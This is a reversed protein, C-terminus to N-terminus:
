TVGLRDISVLLRILLGDPAWERVIEGGLQSRITAQELLTGFGSEDVPAVPPGGHEKWHFVLNDEEIQGGIDVRGRPDSFAGYKAANTAFEHLLLALSTVASGSIKINMGEIRCRNDEDASSNTYPAVITRILDHLTTSQATRESSTSTLPVTLNHARALANLRSSVAAALEQPTNAFRASLSVISGALAFLNKIRHDMERLLMHQQEEARRRETIDRAIKSAGIVRGFRDKMPSSTLSVEVLSGDKRRRITELHDVREGRRIRSLIETEEDHRDVPILILISRGIVEDASYGFIRQAGANWSVITGNIDKALIADNSSEVIASYRLAAENIAARDTLDVLINVAGLLNGAPDLVPTPFAQFPVRTGDPREAIAEYGRNAIRQKLALAMPCEDHPMLQGDPWYLKWSGCFESRGIEPETGWFKAAARNFFTIKGLADTTYIAEPFAELIEKVGFAMTNENVAVNDVRDVANMIRGWDEGVGQRM